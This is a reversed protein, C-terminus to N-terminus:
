TRWKGTGNFIDSSFAYPVRRFQHKGDKKRVAWIGRHGCSLIGMGGEPLPNEKLWKRIAASAKASDMPELM